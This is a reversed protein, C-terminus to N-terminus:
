YAETSTIVTETVYDAIEVLVRDPESRVNETQMRHFPMVNRGRTKRKHRQM